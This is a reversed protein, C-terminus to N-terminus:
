EEYILSDISNQPCNLVPFVHHHYCLLFFFSFLVFLFCSSNDGVFVSLIISQLLCFICTSTGKPIRTNVHITIISTLNITLAHMYHIQVKTNNYQSQQRISVWHDTAGYNPQAGTAQVPSSASSYM